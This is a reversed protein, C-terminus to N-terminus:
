KSRPNIYMNSYIYLVSYIIYLIYIYIIYIIRTFTLSGAFISFPCSSLISLDRAQKGVPRHSRRPSCLQM